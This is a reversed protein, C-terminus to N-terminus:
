VMRTLTDILSVALFLWFSDACYNSHPCMDVCYSSVPCMDVYYRSLPCMDVYYRSSLCEHTQAIVMFFHSLCIKKQLMNNFALASTICYFHPSVGCYDSRNDKGINWQIRPGCVLIDTQFFPFM